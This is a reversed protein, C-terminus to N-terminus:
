RGVEARELEIGTLGLDPGWTALGIRRRGPIPQLSVARFLVLDGLSVTLRRDEYALTLTMEEQALLEAPLEIPM